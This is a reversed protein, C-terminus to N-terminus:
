IGIRPDTKPVVRSGLTFISKGPYAHAYAREEIYFFTTGDQLQPTRICSTIDRLYSEVLYSTDLRIQLYSILRVIRCYIRYVYIREVFNSLALFLYSPKHIQQHLDKNKMKHHCCCGRCGGVLRSLKNTCKMESTLTEYLIIYVIDIMKKSSCVGICFSPSLGLWTNPKQGPRHNQWAWAAESWALALAKLGLKLQCM